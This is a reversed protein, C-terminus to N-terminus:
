VPASMLEEFWTTPNFPVLRALWDGYAKQDRSLEIPQIPFAGAFAGAVLRVRSELGVGGACERYLRFAIDYM